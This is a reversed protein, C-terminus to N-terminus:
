SVRFYWRDNPPAHWVENWRGVVVWREREVVIKWGRGKTRGLTEEKEKKSGKEENNKAAKERRISLSSVCRLFDKVLNCM